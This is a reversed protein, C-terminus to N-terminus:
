SDRYKVFSEKSFKGRIWRLVVNKYFMLYKIAINEVTIFFLLHIEESKKKKQKLWFQQTGSITYRGILQAIYM